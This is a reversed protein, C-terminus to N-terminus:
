PRHQQDARRGGPRLLVVRRRPDPLRAVDDPLTLLRLVSRYLARALEETRTRTSSTPAASPASWAAVRRLVGGAAPARRLLLFALHEATHGPTAIARLRLGGLDVEDGDAVARHPRVRPRRRRLRAGDRRRTAALQRAGSVFDAHLHTDAAFAVRLSRKPRPARLARLIAAPM